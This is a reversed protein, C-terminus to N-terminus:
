HWIATEKVSAAATNYSLLGETRNDMQAILLGEKNWISSKGACVYGGSEGIYNAMFVTMGYQKAISSLKQMDADVGGVSNLVSAIYISANNSSAKAAHEPNSLEYCIAPAVVLGNDLNLFVSNTGPSFIELETPFLFQKSYTIREQNPQFIIMSIALKGEKRTPMGVGIIISGQDSMEQFADLREDAQTTALEGALDPEYGTLSLEPFIIIAAQQEVAVEICRKHVRFNQEFDGKFPKTQAICINM